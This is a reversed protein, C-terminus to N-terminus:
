RPTAPAAKPGTRPFGTPAAQPSTRPPVTQAHANPSVAGKWTVSVGTQRTVKAVYGNRFGRRRDGTNYMSLAELLAPAEKRYRAWTEIYNQRLITTGIRINTCPDLLDGPRLSYRRLWQSNVQMLGIDTSHGARLAEALLREAEARNSPYYSRVQTNLAYPNGRSEHQIIASVTEPHVAIACKLILAPLDIATM